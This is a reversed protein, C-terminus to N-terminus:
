DLTIDKSEWRANMGYITNTIQYKPSFSPRERARVIHKTTLIIKMFYCVVISNLNLLM